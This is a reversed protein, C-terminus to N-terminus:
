KQCSQYNQGLLDLQTRSCCSPHTALIYKKDSLLEPLKLSLKAWPQLQLMPFLHNFVWPTWNHVPVDELHFYWIVFSNM